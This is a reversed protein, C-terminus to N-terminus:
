DNILFLRMLYDEIHCFEPPYKDVYRGNEDVEYEGSETVVTFPPIKGENVLCRAALEVIETSTHIDRYKLILAEKEVDCDPIAPSYNNYHLKFM